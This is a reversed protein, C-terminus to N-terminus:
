AYLDTRGSLTAESREGGTLNHDPGSGFSGTPQDSPTGPSPDRSQSQSQGGTFSIEAEAIRVGQARAEQVLKPQAEALAQQAAESTVHLRVHAGRDTQTIEVRLEGLTEPTLRFRMAGESSASRAIDRAVENIWEGDKALDLVQAAIAAGLNQVPAAPTGPLPGATPTPALPATAAGERLPQAASLQELVTLEQLVEAPLAAPVLAPAANATRMALEPAAATAISQPSADAARIGASRGATQAPASAQGTQVVMGAVSLGGAIRSARHVGGGMGIQTIAEPAFAGAAPGRRANYAAVVGDAKGSQVYGRIQDASMGKVADGYNHRAMITWNGNEGWENLENQLAYGTGDSRAQRYSDPVYIGKADMDAVYAQRRQEVDVERQAVGARMRQFEVRAAAFQASGPEIQAGASARTAAGEVAGGTSGRVTTGTAPAAARQQELLPLLMSADMAADSEPQEPPVAQQTEGEAAEPAAAEQAMPGIAAVLAAFMDAVGPAAAPAADPGAVKASSLNAATPM